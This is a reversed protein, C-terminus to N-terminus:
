FVLLKPLDRDMNRNRIPPCQHRYCALDIFQVNGSHWEFRDIFRLMSRITQSGCAFCVDTTQRELVEHLDKPLKAKLTEININQCVLANLALDVLSPFHIKEMAVHETLSLHNINVYKCDDSRRIALNYKDCATTANVDERNMQQIYKTHVNEDYRMVISRLKSPRVGPCKVHCFKVGLKYVELHTVNPAMLVWTDKILIGLAVITISSSHTMVRDCDSDEDITITITQKQM